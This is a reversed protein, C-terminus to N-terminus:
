IPTCGTMWSGTAISSHYHGEVSVVAVTAIGLKLEPPTVLILRHGDARIALRNREPFYVRWCGDMELPAPPVDLILVLRVSVASLCVQKHILIPTFHFVPSVPLSAQLAPFASLTFM